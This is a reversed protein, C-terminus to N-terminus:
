IMPSESMMAKHIYILRWQLHSKLIILLISWGSVISSFKRHTWYDWSSFMFYLQFIKLYSFHGRFHYEQPRKSGLLPYLIFFSLLFWMMTRVRDMIFGAQNRFAQFYSNLQSPDLCRIASSPNKLIDGIKAMNIEFNGIILLRNGNVALSNSFVWINYGNIIGNNGIM